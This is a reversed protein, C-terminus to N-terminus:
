RKLRNQTSNQVHHSVSTMNWDESLPYRTKGASTLSSAIKAGIHAQLTKTSVWNSTSPHKNRSDIDTGYTETDTKLGTSQKM